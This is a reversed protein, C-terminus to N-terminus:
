AVPTLIRDPTLGKHYRALITTRNIGTAKAWGAVTNRQGGYEIWIVSRRNSAQTIATAWRCNEPAYGKDGNIRDLSHKPSPRDGMDKIFEDFSAWRECVTIGRGGYDKYHKDRPNTCRQCMHNWAQWEPRVEGNRTYGHRLRSQRKCGCSKSKGTALCYADVQKEKGCECRCLYRKKRADRSQSVLTWAGVKSGIDM